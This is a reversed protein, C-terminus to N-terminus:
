NLSNIFNEDSAIRRIASKIKRKNIFFRIILHIFGIFMLTWAIGAYAETNTFALQGNKQYYFKDGHCSSFFYIILSWYIFTLTFFSKFLLKPLHQPYIYSLGSSLNKLYFFGGDNTKKTNGWLCIVDHNNAVNATLNLQIENGSLSTIWFEQHRSTSISVHPGWNTHTTSGHTESWANLSHVKGRAGNVWCKKGLIKIDM